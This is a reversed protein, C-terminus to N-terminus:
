CVYEHEARSSQHQSFQARGCSLGIVGDYHVVALIVVYAHRGPQASLGLCKVAAEQLSSTVKLCSSKLRGQSRRERATLTGKFRPTARVAM